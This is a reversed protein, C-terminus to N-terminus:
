FHKYEIKQKAFHTSDTHSGMLALGYKNVFAWQPVIGKKSNVMGINNGQLDVKAESQHTLIIAARIELQFIGVISVHPVKVSM